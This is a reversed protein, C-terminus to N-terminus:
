TNALFIDIQQLVDSLFPNFTIRRLTHQRLNEETTEGLYISRSTECEQWAPTDKDYQSCEKVTGQSGFYMDNENLALSVHSQGLIKQKPVASMIVQIRPDTAQMPKQKFWLMKSQPNHLSTFFDFVAQSDVTTDEASQIIFLPLKLNQRPSLNQLQSIVMNVQYPANVPFSNYKVPDTDNAKSVWAISPIIRSLWYVPTIAWSFKGAIKLAPAFLILGKAQTPYHLADLLVLTAGTSHGVLYINKAQSALSNLGFQSANIWDQATVQTLDGPATGHGPLLISYVLFCKEQFHKALEHMLYPSALLGHILLVGNEYKGQETKKCVMPDPLLEEPSNQAVVLSTNNVQALTRGQKIMDNSQKIYESFPQSSPFNFHSNLGTPQYRLVPPTSNHHWGWQYVGALGILLIIDIIIFKKWSCM